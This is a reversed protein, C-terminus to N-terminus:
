LVGHYGSVTALCAGCGGSYTYGVDCAVCISRAGGHKSCRSCLGNVSAFLRCNRYCIESNEPFLFIISKRVDKENNRVCGNAGFM